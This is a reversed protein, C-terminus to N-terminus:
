RGAGADIERMAAADRKSLDPYAPDAGVDRTIRWSRGCKRGEALRPVVAVGVVDAARFAEAPGAGGTLVIDSTICVDAFGVERLIALLGADEVFVEPAAELSSGIRKAARELELAGTVVGRARRVADWRKALADDRWAAPV